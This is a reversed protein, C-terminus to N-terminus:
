KGKGVLIIGIVRNYHSYFTEQHIVKGNKDKVIRTVWVDQGDAPYEIQERAGKKLATTYRYETHGPRYNKVIPRTLIVRRGTPVSYITFRVIGPKAFARILIPFNTDNRFTMDQIGGGDSQYVTADLGKPYRSIYYYHNRRAGMELGARLAANFITTSCSCIGGAITKGEVSRGDVIAGGYKYGTRISVEGITKWFSFRQGPALVTGNIAMAPVSINASFGNHPGSQYYTTWSSIAKMRPAAKEAEETTLAPQSIALAPIIPTGPSTTVAARGVMLGQILSVTNPVDLKRGTKGAKVGVVSGNKGTYFTASVAKQDIKDALAQVAAEIKATDTLPAYTGDPGAGFSLWGRVTTDAITWHDKDHTLVVPATMRDAKIRAVVAEVDDIAPSVPGVELPISLAAPADPSALATSIAAVTAAQDVARGLQGTQVVFGTKAAAVTASVPARDIRAAIAAVAGELTSRDITMRRAVDVRHVAARAEEVVRELANGTRGVAFAEDLMADVDPRRGLQAYTLTTDGTAAQLTVAGSDTAAFAADLKAAADNRTLGAVDVGGISVGAAIKGAFTQEYALITGAAVIAVLLIGVVFAVLVRSLRWRRAELAPSTVQTETTTTM